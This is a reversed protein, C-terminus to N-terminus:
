PQLQEALMLTQARGQRHEAQVHAGHIQFMTTDAHHATQQQGLQADKHYGHLRAAPHLRDPHNAITLATPRTPYMFMHLVHPRLEALQHIHAHENERTVASHTAPLAIIVANHKHITLLILLVALIHVAEQKLDTFLAHHRAGHLGVARLPLAAPLAIEVAMQANLVLIGNLAYMGKTLELIQTLAPKFTGMSV